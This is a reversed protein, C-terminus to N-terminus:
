PTNMNALLPRRMLPKTGKSKKTRQLVMRRTTTGKYLQWSSGNVSVERYRLWNDLPTWTPAHSDFHRDVMYTGEKKAMRLTVLKSEISTTVILTPWGSPLRGDVVATLGLGGVAVDKQRCLKSCRM